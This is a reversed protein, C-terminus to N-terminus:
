NEILPLIKEALYRSGNLGLHHSDRYLLRDDIIITCKKDDCLYQLPNILTVQPFKKLVTKLLSDYSAQRETITFTDISCRKESIQFPRGICLQPSFPIEPIDHILFINKGMKLLSQITTELGQLYAKENDLIEGTQVDKFFIRVFNAGIHDFAFPQQTINLPGVMSLVVNQIEGHNNLYNKVAINNEYCEREFNGENYVLVGLLPPCSTKALLLWSNKSHEVIGPFFHAAHSDGWLVYHFPSDQKMSYNFFNPQKTLGNGLETFVPIKASYSYFNSLEQQNNEFSNQNLLLNKGGQNISWDAFFLLAAYAIGMILLSRKASLNFRFPNEIFHYTFISAILIFIISFLRMQLSPNGSELIVLFSLVPWHWLYLPYSIKGIYVAIKNKLINPYIWQGTLSIFGCTGLTIVIGNLVTNSLIQISFYLPLFLATLSISFLIAKNKPSWGFWNIPTTALLAGLMLEWIRAFPSYFSLSPDKLRIILFYTLSIVLLLFIILTKNKIFKHSIFLLLPWFVYFQEEISLSWLHLLPKLTSNKDFYSIELYLNINQLFLLAAAAHKFFQKYEEQFLVFCGIITFTLIVTILAPMIRRIRKSYFHALSFKKQNLQDLILSTILFGSIVFFIDVGLYGHPLAAPFFHYVIVSIVALARLCDIEPRYTTKM